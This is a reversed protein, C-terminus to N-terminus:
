LMYAMFVSVLIAAATQVRDFGFSRVSANTKSSGTGLGGAAQVAGTLFNSPCVSTVSKYITAQNALLVSNSIGPAYPNSSMYNIWPTLFNRTCSTCDNTSVSNPLFMFAVNDSQFADADITGQATSLHQQADAAATHASSTANSGASLICFNGADDKGCLSSKMPSLIYPADYLLVVDKNGSTLESQCGTSVSALAARITADDCTSTSCVKTLDDASPKSGQAFPATVALIPALCGQIQTNSNLSELASQCSSSIGEPILSSATSSNGSSQALVATAFLSLVTLSSFM